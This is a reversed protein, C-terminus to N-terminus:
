RPTSITAQVSASYPFTSIVFGFLLVIGKLHTRYIGVTLIIILKPNVFM